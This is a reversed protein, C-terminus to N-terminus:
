EDGEPLGVAVFGHERLAAVAAMPVTVFGKKDADFQHGGWSAGTCDPPCKMKVM